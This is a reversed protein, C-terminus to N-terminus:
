RCISVYILSVKEVEKNSPNQNNQVPEPSSNTNSQLNTMVENGEVNEKKVERSSLAAISNLYEQFYFSVNM